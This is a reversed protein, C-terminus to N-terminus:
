SQRRRWEIEGAELARQEALNRQRLQRRHGRARIAGVAIQGITVLALLALALLEPVLGDIPIQVAILMITVLGFRDVGGITRAQFGALALLYLAVGGSLVYRQVGHLTDGLSLTSPDAIDALVKKLGLSFLIIGIIMPLHLYSYADRGRTFQAEGQTRRLAEEGAIALADFYAWWLAAIIAIGLGIALLIPWVLPPGAILNPGTGLSIISEGFAILIIQAYRDAWHGASVILVEEVRVLAGASYEVAIALGWLGARAAFEAHGSFFRDPVLAAVFLLMTSILVPLGQTLPLRRPRGVGTAAYGFALVQLARVLFYSAAFVLDGPLGKPRNEFAGPVTVALAFIAGMIAFGILPMIGQDARVVNGLAAFTTWAFWLLALVLLGRVLASPSLTKSTVTTVNLFAYVFVLDYFLELRTVRAGPAAPELGPRERRRNVM